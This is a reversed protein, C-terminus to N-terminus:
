GESHSSTMLMARADAPFSPPLSGGRAFVSPPAGVGLLTRSCTRQPSGWYISKRALVIVADPDTPTLLMPKPRNVDGFGPANSALMIFPMGEGVIKTNAKLKLTDSVIYHGFPLFLTPHRDIATQLAKTDDTIGDGKAGAEFVSVAGDFTPRAIIPIPGVPAATATAALDLVGSASANLEGQAWVPGALKWLAVPTSSAPLAQDVVWKTGTVTVDSLLLWSKSLATATTATTATAAAAADTYKGIAAGSSMGTFRSSLVQININPDDPIQLGKFAIVDDTARVDASLPLLLSSRRCSM